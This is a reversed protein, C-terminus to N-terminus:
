QSNGDLISTTLIIFNRERLALKAGHPYIVLPVEIPCDTVSQEEHLWPWGKLNWWCEIKFCTFFFVLSIHISCLVHM